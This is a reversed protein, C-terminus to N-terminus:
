IGGRREPAGAVSGRLWQAQFSVVMAQMERFFETVKCVIMIVWCSILLVFM